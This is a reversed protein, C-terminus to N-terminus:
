FGYTVGAHVSGQRLRLQPSSHRDARLGAECFVSVHDTAPIHVGAVAGLVVGTSPNGGTVRSPRLVSMGVPVGVYVHGERRGVVFPVRLKLWVGLGIMGTRTIVDSEPPELPIVLQTRVYDVFVGVAIYRNTSLELRGGLTFAPALAHDISLMDDSGRMRGAFHAGTFLSVSLDLGQGPRRTSASGSANTFPQTEPYPTGGQARAGAPAGLAGLTVACAAIWWGSPPRRTRGSM